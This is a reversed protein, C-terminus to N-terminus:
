RVQVFLSTPDELLGCVRHLFQVAIHGDVLRHDFSLAFNTVHRIVIEDNVVWPMKRVAHVGLICVQPQSIIPTSSGAGFMGANTITFTGDSMDKPNLRNNHANASLISVETALEVISKKDADHVVPVILGAERGVAVGINYYFKSIIETDTMSGNIYPFEKLGICVAKIIFPLYTVNVGYQERLAAKNKERFDRLVTMDCDEFTTVHPSYAKSRLMHEAIARRPGSIPERREREGPAAPAFTPIAVKQAPTTPTAPASSSPTASPVAQAVKSRGEVFDLVDEKTVRGKPGTPALEAPNVGYERILKKVAPAMKGTGKEGTPKRGNTAGPLGPATTTAPPSVTTTVAGSGMAFLSKSAAASASTAPAKAADPTHSEHIATKIDEGEGLIVAIKAGVRVTEGPSAMLQGVTGAVESPIEINVKDTALEVLPQDKAVKEGVKVKWEVITGELVSEGMQPVVIDTAM